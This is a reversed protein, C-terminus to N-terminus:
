VRTDEVLLPHTYKEMEPLSTYFCCKLWIVETMLALSALLEGGLVFGMLCKITAVCPPFGCFVAPQGHLGLLAMEGIGNVFAFLRTCKM